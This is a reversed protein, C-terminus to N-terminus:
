ALVVERDRVQTFLLETGVDLYKGAVSAKGSCSNRRCHYSNVVGQQQPRQRRRRRQQGRRRQMPATRHAEM